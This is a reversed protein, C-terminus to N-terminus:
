YCAISLKWGANRLQSRRINENKSRTDKLFGRIVFTVDLQSNGDGQCVPTNVQLIVLNGATSVGYFNKIIAFRILPLIAFLCTTHGLFQLYRSTKIRHYAQFAPVIISFKITPNDFGSPTVDKLFM